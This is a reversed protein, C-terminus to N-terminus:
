GGKPDNVTPVMSVDQSPSSVVQGRKWLLSIFNSGRGIILGTLVPGVYPVSPLGLAAPLDAGYAISVIVALIAALYMKTWKWQLPFSPLFYEIISEILLALTSIAAIAQINEM